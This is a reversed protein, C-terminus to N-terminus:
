KMLYTICNVVISEVELLLPIIYIVQALPCRYVLNCLLCLTAKALENRSDVDQSLLVELCKGATSSNGSLIKLIHNCLQILDYDRMMVVHMSVRMESLESAFALAAGLLEICASITTTLRDRAFADFVSIEESFPLGLLHKQVALVFAMFVNSRSSDVLLSAVLRDHVV